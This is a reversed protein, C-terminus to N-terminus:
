LARYCNLDEADLFITRIPAGTEEGFSSGCGRQVVRVYNCDIFYAFRLFKKVVRFRGKWVDNHFINLSLREIIHDFRSPERHVFGDIKSNLDGFTQLCSVLSPDDM